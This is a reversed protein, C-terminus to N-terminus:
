VFFSIINPMCISFHIDCFFFISVKLGLSMINILFLCEDISYVSLMHTANIIHNPFTLILIIFAKMM